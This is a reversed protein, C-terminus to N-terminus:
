RLLYGDKGYHFTIPKVAVQEIKFRGCVKYSNEALVKRFEDAKSNTFDYVKKQCKDCHKGGDAQTMADWNESCSFNLKVNTIDQQM